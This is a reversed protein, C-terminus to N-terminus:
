RLVIAVVGAVIMAAGALRGGLPGVPAVKELLVFFTIAAIWLLNMVGGFFLLGMLAWCCGICFGGHGFGMRFAGLTGPHWHRAFFHAPARCHELCVSKAPTLQYIGAAILLLAGLAPSTAVMMPSLLAAQDLAWQAATALVSFLCWMALYGAVFAGTPALTAGQRAAKRAVAAYLLTMPAASPVMMGVMMVSWMLFMLLFDLTAWPRVGAVDMDSAMAGGTAMSGAGAMDGMELAVYVLYAWALLTVGALAVLIAIRDRRPLTPATPTVPDRSDSVM